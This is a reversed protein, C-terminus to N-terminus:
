ETTEKAKADRQRQQYAAGATLMQAHRAYEAARRNFETDPPKVGLKTLLEQLNKFSHRIRHGM